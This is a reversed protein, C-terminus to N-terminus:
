NNAAHEQRQSARKIFEELPMLPRGVTALTQPPISGGSVLQRGADKAAQLIDNVPVGKEAMAKFAPGHPRLLAGAFEWNLNKCIAKMHVLLPDFNDMEWFGCTSVLVIKGGVKGGRIPHRSHGDRLEISPRGLPMMRDWLGKLPAAMGDFYVPTAFVWVDAAALQPLLMQMDDNQFCKGPTKMQCGFDGQCPKIDLKKTYHVDISAGGERMGELFPALIMGIVGKDMRPSANIAIAKM